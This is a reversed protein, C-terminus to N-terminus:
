LCIGSTSSCSYNYLNFLTVSDTCGQFMRYLLGLLKKAKVQLNKPQERVLTLHCMVLTSPRSQNTLCEQFQVAGTFCSCLGASVSSLPELGGLMGVFRSWVQVTGPQAKTPCVLAPLWVLCLCPKAEWTYIGDMDESHLNTTCALDAYDCGTKGRFCEVVVLNWWRVVAYNVDFHDADCQTHSSTHTHTPWRVM